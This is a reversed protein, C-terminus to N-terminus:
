SPIRTCVYLEMLIGCFDSFEMWFAGAKEEKPQLTPMQGAIKSAVERYGRGYSTWSGEGWPNAVKIWKRRALVTEEFTEIVAYAHSAVMGQVKSEGSSHGKSDAKGLNEKTSFAVPSNDQLKATIERFLADQEPIYIGSGSPGAKKVTTYAGDRWGSRHTQLDNSVKITAVSVGFLMQFVESSHGGELNAMTPNDTDITKRNTAKVFCCAAKELVVPWFGTTSVGTVGARNSGMFSARSKKVKIFHPLGAGDFLRVVVYGDGCDRMLDKIMKTGDSFKIIAVIGALFWCDGIMGQSIDSIDLPDKLFLCSNKSKSWYTFKRKVAGGLTTPEKIEVISKQDAPLILNGDRSM